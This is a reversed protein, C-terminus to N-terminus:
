KAIKSNLFEITEAPETIIVYRANVIDLPNMQSVTELNVFPLNRFSLRNADNKSVSFLKVNGKKDFVLNEFDKVSALSKMIEGAEKTKSDKVEVKDVFLVKGERVKASLVTLLAKAKMKSNIKKKYNKASLPGHANGGGVWIPSRSSGHRARGTGKQQWPKKGGGSVEARDKTDATGARKNSMMGVVVQHVLDANWPLGFINEPLTLSSVEKGNQNYVKTEM